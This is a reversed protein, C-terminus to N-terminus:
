KPIRGEVGEVYFNLTHLDADSMVKGAALFVKGAQNKLPGTFPHLKGAKIADRRAEALKRVKSPVATGFNEINVAGEKVGYWISCPKWSGAAIKEITENYIVGWNLIAAALQANGGFKSMDSNWGFAYVGKEKAVQAVAPSNTNQMLVDAGQAILAMAAERERGPDFWRNVWIVSTRAKANVSRAGITFANINRIVEPIPISGVVGLRGNQTQKGAVVGLMYAGEYTRIDYTGLNKGTKNGTAHMFVTQPFVRAVKEIPDQYGLSTGFIVKYGRSALDFFVRESDATELVNEVGITRVKNGHKAEVARRGFDHSYTWGYDGIPGIYVFGASLPSVASAACAFGFAFVASAALKFRSLSM